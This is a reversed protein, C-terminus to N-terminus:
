AAPAIMGPVDECCLKGSIPDFYRQYWESFAEFNISGSKEVDIERWAANIWKQHSEPKQIKYVACFM